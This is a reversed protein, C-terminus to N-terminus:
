NVPTGQESWCNGLTDHGILKGDHIQSLWINGHVDGGELFDVDGSAGVYNVEGKLQITTKLTSWESFDILDGRQLDNNILTTRVADRDYPDDSASIALAFIYVADFVSHSFYGDPEGFTTLYSDQFAATRDSCGAKTIIFNNSEFRSLAELSLSDILTTDHAADGLLVKLESLEHNAALSNLIPSIHVSFLSSGLCDYDGSSLAETTAKVYDSTLDFPSSVFQIDDRGSASLAEEVTHMLATTYSDDRDSLYLVRSCQMSEIIKAHVKGQIEDSACTRYCYDDDAILKIDPHTSSHSISVINSNAAALCVGYDTPATGMTVSSRDAGIIGVVTSDKGLKQVQDIATLKESNSDCTIVGLQLSKSGIGGGNNINTTALIIANTWVDLQEAIFALYVDGEVMIHCQNHLTPDTTTTQTKACNVLLSFSFVVYLTLVSLKPLM